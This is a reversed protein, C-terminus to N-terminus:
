IVGKCLFTTGLHQDINESGCFLTHITHQNHWGQGWAVEQVGLLDLKYKTLERSLVLFGSRYLSRVNWTGFRIGGENM